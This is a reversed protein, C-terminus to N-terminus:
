TPKKKKKRGSPPRTPKAYHGLREPQKRIRERQWRAKALGMREFGLLVWEDPNLDERYKQLEELVDSVWWKKKEEGKKPFRMKYTIIVSIALMASRNQGLRCNIFIWTGSFLMRSLVFSVTRLMPKMFNRVIDPGEKIQRMDIFLPFRNTKRRPIPYIVSTVSYNVSKFAHIDYTLGASKLNRTTEEFAECPGVFLRGGTKTKFILDYKRSIYPKYLKPDFLTQKPPAGEYMM